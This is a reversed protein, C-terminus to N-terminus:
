EKVTVGHISWWWRDSSGTQEIRIYRAPRPSFNVALARDNHENRAVEQWQQRDTSLRVIYGQPYDNASGATDLALGSVLRVDNLDLEFWMGPRQVTRSSWRTEPRGDLAQSINDAGSAVNNHSATASLNIQEPEPTPTPEPEPEPTPKPEPEPAPEPEPEPTPEPEPEPEEPTEPEGGQEAFIVIAQNISWWWSTTRGTQEIRIYRAPRPSFAVELARDNQDQRAVEEWQRDDTSLRVVYGRPYDNASGVTDLALGNVLRTENLDLEFWMGPQQLARTSWRTEPRGDLAQSINDSGTLVNNHSARASPKVEALIQLDYISWWFVPDQGTQEIRIYRLPQRSFTVELPQDNVPNEAVTTWSRADRSVKVLYGRPYDRPSPDNNLRLQSVPRVEGLDIQFWMGPQQPARSSWRTYLNDDIAQLLNDEGQQRNNHSSSLSIGAPAPTEAPPAPETGPSIATVQLDLTPVNQWAFWTRLEEVMDWRLRYVGPVRPASLNCNLTVSDGPPLPHPLNTRNDDWLSAPVEAGALTYWHYGLRVPYPGDTPWTRYSTNRITVQVANTQGIVMTAPTNHSVYEVAYAPRDIEHGRIIQLGTGERERINRLVRNKSRNVIDALQRAVPDSRESDIRFSWNNDQGPPARHQASLLLWLVVDDFRGKDGLSEGDGFPNGSGLETGSIHRFKGWTRLAEAQQEVLNRQGGPLVAIDAAYGHIAPVLNDPRENGFLATFYSLQDQKLNASLAPCLFTVDPRQAAVEKMFVGAAPAFTNLTFTRPDAHPDSWQREYPLDPENGLVLKFPVEPLMTELYRIFKDIALRYRRLSASKFPNLNAGGDGADLRIFLMVRDQYGRDRIARVLRQLNWAHNEILGNRLQGYVNTEFIDPAQLKNEDGDAQVLDMVILRNGAQVNALIQMVAEINPAVNSEPEASIRTHVGIRGTLAGTRQHTALVISRLTGYLDKQTQLRYLAEVEQQGAEYTSGALMQRMIRWIDAQSLRQFNGRLEAEMQRQTVQNRQGFVISQELYQAYNHLKDLSVTVTAAIGFDSRPSATQRYAAYAAKPRRAFDSLGYPHAMADTYCFWFVQEVRDSFRTTITDYFRRLYEAQAEDDVTELGIETIWIPRTIVQQYGAILDGVYGTGWDPDPWDPTPRKTYPHIAVADGALHGDMAQIVRALWDPQGSVLGGNIVKLGSGVRKIAEYSRNLLRGFLAESLCPDYHPQAMPLDPANWIQFSPRWPALLKAIEAARQAFGAIFEAWLADAAASAPKGPCTEATLIVLSNIGANALAELQQRYFRAVDPDPQSGLTSDKFTFRVTEVGLARLEAPDPNGQPNRPDINLGFM